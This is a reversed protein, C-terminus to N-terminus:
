GLGRSTSRDNSVDMARPAFGEWEDEVNYSLRQLMYSIIEGWQEFDKTVKYSIFHFEFYNMYFIDIEM